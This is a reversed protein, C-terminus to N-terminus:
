RRRFLGQFIIATLAVLGIAIGALALLVWADPAEGRLMLSQLARIGYTVPLAYSVIWVPKILNHLPLFFGSFFVSALLVLLSFQVAQTETRSISSIFFGLGLSAAILLLLTVAVLPISGLLPVNLVLVMLTVLIATLIGAQVFYSIYKGGLIERSSVPAVRFLEIAGSLRERVLALATLTVAIHQVLLALVGPAYFAVFNPSTPALNKSTPTFPSVLVNTPIHGSAALLAATTADPTTGGRPRLDAQQLVKVLVQRNFQSTQVYGYYQLWTRQIPDLENYLLEMTAQHGSQITAYAHAPFILVAGIQRARLQAVAQDRNRTVGVLTFPPTFQSKYASVNTPLNLDSPLVLVTSIPQPKSNYGVGFLLLVVFPGVILTLVLRPQRWIQILEKSIFSLPRVFTRSLRDLLGSRGKM